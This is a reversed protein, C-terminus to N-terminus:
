QFFVDNTQIWKNITDFCEIGIQTRQEKRDKKKSKVKSTNFNEPNILGFHVNVPQFEKPDSEFIYKCLSGIMSNEEPLSWPKNKIESILALSSLLGAASSETYGEVGTIQGAFRIKSNNKLSFNKNLLLPSCIYTNRHMSGLRLFEANELGPILKFVEKQAPYKLKTQFGVLNYATKSINDIRLQVVAHPRKGTRPDILGVPKMPGFRLSDIGTEAIAEIPQCGQFYKAEEFDHFDMKEANILAAYFKEYEDKQMPCNIYDEGGKNYRSSFYVKTLDISDKSVVPAIADYFYLGSNETFSSIYKALAGQTLPGTAIITAYAEPLDEIQDVQMVTKEVNGTSLLRSEVEKSFLDRDVALAEGAPVQAAPVCSLIFSGLMQLEKKFIGHANNLAVSKFTNSCVLEALGGTKHAPTLILPRMEFLRVKLGRSALQYAAECGALGAGIINIYIESMNHRIGASM